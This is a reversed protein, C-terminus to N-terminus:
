NVAAVQFHRKYARLSDGKKFDLMRQLRGHQRISPSRQMEKVKMNWSTAVVSRFWETFPWPDSPIYPIISRFRWTDSEFIFCVFFIAFRSKSVMLTCLDQKMANSHMKSCQVRCVGPYFFDTMWNCYTVHLISETCIDMLLHILKVRYLLSGFLTSYIQLHYFCRVNM